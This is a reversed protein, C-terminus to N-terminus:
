IINFVDFVQPHFTVKNNYTKNNQGGFPIDDFYEFVVTGFHWEFGYCGCLELDM